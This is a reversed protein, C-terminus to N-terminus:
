KSIRFVLQIRITRIFLRDPSFKTNTYENTNM